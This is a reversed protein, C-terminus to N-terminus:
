IKRKQKKVIICKLTDYKINTYLKLTNRDLRLNDFPFQNGLHKEKLWIDNDDFKADYRAYWDLFFESKYIKVFFPKDIEMYFKIFTRVGDPSYIGKCFLYSNHSYNYLFISAALFFIVAGVYIFRLKIKLPLKKM